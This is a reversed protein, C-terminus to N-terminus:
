DTTARDRAGEVQRRQCPTPRFEALYPKDIRIVTRPRRGRLDNRSALGGPQNVQLVVDVQDDDGGWVLQMTRQGM